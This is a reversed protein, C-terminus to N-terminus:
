KGKLRMALICSTQLPSCNASVSLMSKKWAMLKCEFKCGILDVISLFDPHAVKDTTKGVGKFWRLTLHPKIAYKCVKADLHAEVARFITLWYIVYGASKYFITKARGM